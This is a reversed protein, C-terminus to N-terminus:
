YLLVFVTGTYISRFGWLCFPRFTHLWMSISLSSLIAGGLVFLIVTLAYVARKKRLLYAPILWYANLYFIGIFPLMAWIIQLSNLPDERAPPSSPRVLLICLVLASWIGGHLLVSYLRRSKLM